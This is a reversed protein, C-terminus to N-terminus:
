ETWYDFVLAKDIKPLALEVFAKHAPHPLYEDRALDNRFTVVFGHTFGGALNEVGEDVGKEFGAIADIKGPLAAFADVTEQVQEAAIGDKFKFLVVHRLRRTASTAGLGELMREAVFKNGTPNLHVGDTTLLGQEKNDPNQARLRTLFASRLDILGAKTEKAVGRGIECYEDLMADLKNAGDTKEGIVSATCLLVRAGAEQLKGIIRKLGAEFEDKPTGRGNQSHWVDNIGIYIVVVSPKKALVDRDLRRELDPVRNGSIGAGLIEIELDPKSKAIAERVLTVYGGPAAGAETISDGLFVVRDGKRLTEDAQAATSAGAM